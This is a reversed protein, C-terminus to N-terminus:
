SLDMKGAASITITAHNFDGEMELYVTQRDYNPTIKLAHVGHLPIDEAMSDALYWVNTYVM